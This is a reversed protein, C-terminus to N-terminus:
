AHGPGCIVNADEFKAFEGGGRVDDVGKRATLGGGLEHKGRAPVDV